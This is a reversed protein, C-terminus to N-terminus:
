RGLGQTKGADDPQTRFWRDLRDTRQLNQNYVEKLGELKQEEQVKEEESPGLRPGKFLTELRGEVTQPPPMGNTRAVLTPYNSGRPMGDMTYGGPLPLFQDGHTKTRVVSAILSNYGFAPLAAMKTERTRDTPVIDQHKWGVATKYGERRFIPRSVTRAGLGQTTFSHSTGDQVNSGYFMENIGDSEDYYRPALDPASQKLRIQSITDGVSGVAGPSIYNKNWMNLPTKVPELILEM